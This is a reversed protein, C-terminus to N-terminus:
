ALFERGSGEQFCKAKEAGMGCRLLTGAFFSVCKGETHRETWKLCAHILAVGSEVADKDALLLDLAGGLAAGDGTNVGNDKTRRNLCKVVAPVNEEYWRRREEQEEAKWRAVRAQYEPDADLRACFEEWTEKM